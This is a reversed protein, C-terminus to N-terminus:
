FLYFFRNKGNNKGHILFGQYDNRIILTKIQNTHQRVL